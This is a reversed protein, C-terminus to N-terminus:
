SLICRQKRRGHGNRATDEKDGARMAKVRNLLLDTRLSSRRVTTEPAPLITPVANDVIDKSSFRSRMRQLPSSRHSPQLQGDASWENRLLKHMEPCMQKPLRASTFLESFITDINTGTKASCVILHRGHNGYTDAIRRQCTDVDVQRRTLECKNLVLAIPIQAPDCKKCDIIQEYYEFLREFSAPLDVSSV